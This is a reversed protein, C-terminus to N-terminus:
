RGFDGEGAGGDGPPSRDRKSPGLRGQISRRPPSRRWDDRVGLRWHFTRCEPWDASATTPPRYDTIQDVHLLVEYSLVNVPGARPRRGDAEAPDALYRSSKSASSSRWRSSM